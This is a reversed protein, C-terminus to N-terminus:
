LLKNKKPPPLPSNYDKNAIHRLFKCDHVTKHAIVSSCADFYSQLTDVQRCLIDRFTEMEALKEKLGRGRQFCPFM